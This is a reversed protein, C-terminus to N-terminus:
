PRFPWEASLPSGPCSESQGPPSSATSSNANIELGILLFFVAMLGDNIWHLVNLGGVYTKLVAFYANALPSNAVALALAAVGM